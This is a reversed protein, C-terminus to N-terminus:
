TLTSSLALLTSSNVVGTVAVSVSTPGISGLWGVM